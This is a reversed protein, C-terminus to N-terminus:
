NEMGLEYNKRYAKIFIAGLNRHPPIYDDFKDKVAGTFQKSLQNWLSVWSIDKGSRLTETLLNLMPQNVTGSGIQKSSIIHADPCVKLVDNLNHYAGCSGLLVIKATPSLQKITYELYYSHGRHVVITPKYGNANMYKILNAQAQADLNEDNSLPKNAFIVMPTGTTSTITVWEKEQEIKWLTSNFSNLFGNFIGVGDKDGYYFLQMVIRGKDDKLSQNTLSYVSPIGLQASIDKKGLSDYSIFMRNLLNYIIQGRKRGANKAQTLNNAIQQRILAGTEANTISAYSNAVDVADELSNTKDLGNVFAIMLRNANDKEMRKLFDDLTNYGAATKICKRFRDFTLSMLLSDSRPNKMKAFMIKYAGLYSSTYIEDEGLVLLYYIEEPTLIDIRKFRINDPQEHLENITNIYINIAKEQLTKVLSGYVIPTDGHVIRYAYEIQTQVLLKYYDDDNDLVKTINDMKLLGKMLKDLFPFYLRGRNNLSLKAITHVLSDNNLQIKKGLATNVAAAYRYLEEPDQQARTQILKDIFRNDTHNRLTSLALTPNEECFKRIVIDQADKLGINKQFSASRTIIDGIPSSIQEILPAISKGEQEISLAKTYLHILDSIANVTINKNKLSEELFVLVDETGRLYKVRQNNDLISDAEIRQQLADIEQTLATAIIPRNVIESKIIDLVAKQAKDIKEHFLLRSIPINTQAITQIYTTCIISFIIIRFLKKTM